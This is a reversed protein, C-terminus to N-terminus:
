DRQRATLWRGLLGLVVGASFIAVPVSLIAVAFRTGDDM